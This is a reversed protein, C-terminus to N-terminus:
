METRPARWCLKRSMLTRMGRLVKVTTVPREPEAFTREGEVGDIGLALAAVNLREGGIGALKKVLDLAGVDIGDFPKAGCDGDLLFGGAAARAGGDAGDGLDVVVEAQEVGRNSSGVAGVAASGDGALGGVLDDLADQLKAGALADGDHGGDHSAAFSFKLIQQILKILLAKTGADVAFDDVQGFGWREVLALVM